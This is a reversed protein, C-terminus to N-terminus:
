ECDYLTGNEDYGRKGNQIKQRAIQADAFPTMPDGEDEEPECLADSACAECLEDGDITFSEEGIEEGCRDCIHVEVRRHPCAEGLCHMGLDECGLCQNEFRVM